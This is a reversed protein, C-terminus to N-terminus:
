RGQGPEGDFWAPFRLRAEIAFGEVARAMRAAREGRPLAARMEGLRAMFAALRADGFLGALDERVRRALGPSVGGTSVTLTLGSARVLAVNIFTCAEPRDIVCLLRGAQRAAAHWRAARAEEAPTASPSVFVIAAGDLDAETPPRRHLTLRGAAALAEVAAAPADAVVTVVAGVDLLRDIKSLTEPSTGIVLAPRRQLDVEIPLYRM